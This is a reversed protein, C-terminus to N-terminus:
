PLRPSLPSRLTSPMVGTETCTVTVLLGGGSDQVGAGAEGRVCLRVRELAGVEPPSWLGEPSLCASASGPRWSSAAVPQDEPFTFPCHARSGSPSPWEQAHGSPPSEGAVGGGWLSGGELETPSLAM